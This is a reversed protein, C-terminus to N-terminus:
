LLKVKTFNGFNISRMLIRTILHTKYNTLINTTYNVKEKFNIKNGCAKIHLVEQNITFHGLGM